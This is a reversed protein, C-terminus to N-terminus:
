KMDSLAWFVASSVASGRESPKWVSRDPYCRDTKGSTSGSKYAMRLLCMVPKSFFLVDCRFKQVTWVSWLGVSVPMTKGWRLKRWRLHGTWDTWRFIIKWTLRKSSRCVCSVKILSLFVKWSRYEKMQVNRIRVANTTDSVDTGHIGYIMCSREGM